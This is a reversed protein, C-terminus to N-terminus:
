NTGVAGNTFAQLTMSPVDFEYIGSDECPTNIQVLQSDYDIVAPTDINMRSPAVRNPLRM